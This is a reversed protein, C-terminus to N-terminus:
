QVQQLRAYEAKAQKFIPIDPDAEKWLTLFDQYASKAKARDGSMALARGLQLRAVAGVPDNLILGPHDVIKQFETAAKAGQNAALYVQGRAYVPYLVGFNGNLTSNPTGMECRIAAKLLEIGNGHEGRNVAILARLVPLYSLQVFTDQPFRKDLDTALEQAGVSDGSLARALAAGYQVDRAKSLNLAAMASRKAEARYGFFAEWVAPGVEYLAAGETRAAQQALDRAGAAITKAERLRGSYALASAEHDAILEEARPNAKAMAVARQMGTNDGKLFAIDYRMLLLEPIQLKRDTARQLIRQAEDLRGLVINCYGLMVYAFPFDADLANAKRAEELSEDFKGFTPYIAGALLGHADIARPYTQAWSEFTQQAMDLNGTVQEDYAAKIFFRESDSARDQLQYAKTANQASLASEGLDGYVRGLFAYAMAFKPDLGIARLLPPIPAAGGPTYALKLATSYAKLAELSPTTAEPLTTSHKEVLALSEGVRTRFKKAIESLANLVDEKRLAQVQEDDLAEGTRCNMAHLGLVYSNGLVEISGALVAASAIRVCVERAAEATLAADAPRGMLRLTQQIREESVLSLFPSQGLQVTLGQRLTGDFVPDGTTNKFDALVITDKDTLKPVRHWYWFGGAFLALVAATTPVMVKWRTAIDTTAPPTANKTDQAVDTDRKLRQLDARVDSAHQYRLEREVELLKLVIRQLETPLSDTPPASWYWPKLFARRGTAMEYLVAGFSFLDTRADLAEARAQEPSMYVLTGMVIGAKTLASQLTRTDAEPGTSREELKALGFDLVKVQGEATVIINPPKIDRHVISAAHAAALAGAIQTAYDIVVGLPLGKPTIIKDLSQGPLYEMVLYDVGNDSAVDYVTIINPHNLASAARAEQMFRRKREPDAVKDSPLVKIAVTRRLRTDTARFVEGMGGAGLLAEIKYPGLQAGPILASRTPDDSM